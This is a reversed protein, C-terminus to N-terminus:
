DYENTTPAGAALKLHWAIPYGVARVGLADCMEM